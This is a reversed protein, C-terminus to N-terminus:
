SGAGGSGASALSSRTWGPGPRLDRRDQTLGALGEAQVVGDASTTVAVGDPSGPSPVMDPFLLELETM